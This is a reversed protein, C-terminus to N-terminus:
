PRKFHALSALGGNCPKAAPQLLVISCMAGLSPGKARLRQQLWLRSHQRYHQEICWFEALVAAGVKHPSLKPKQAIITADLNGLVYGAEKM